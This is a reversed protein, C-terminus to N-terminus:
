RILEYHAGDFISKWDGGWVIQIGLYRAAFKMAQSVNRFPERNKWPIEGDIWPALDVAHGFGDSQIMHKSNSTWTVAEEMNMLRRHREKSRVGEIVGFDVTTYRYLAIVTCAVLDPHVGRMNNLSRQSFVFEM